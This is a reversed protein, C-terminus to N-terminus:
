FCRGAKQLPLRSRLLASSSPHGGFMEPPHRLALDHFADETLSKKPFLENIQQQSTCAM